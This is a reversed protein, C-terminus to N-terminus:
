AKAIDLDVPEDDGVPSVMKLATQLPGADQIWVLEPCSEDVEIGEAM